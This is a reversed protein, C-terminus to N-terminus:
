ALERRSKEKEHQRQSGMKWTLSRLREANQMRREIDIDISINNKLVGVNSWPAVM